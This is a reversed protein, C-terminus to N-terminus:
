TTSVCERAIRRCIVTAVSGKKPGTLDLRERLVDLLTSRNDVDLQHETGNVLLVIRSHAPLDASMM